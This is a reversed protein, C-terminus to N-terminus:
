FILNCSKIMQQILNDFTISLNHITNTSQNLTIPNIKIRKPHPNNLQDHDKPKNPYWNPVKKDDYTTNCIFLIFCISFM